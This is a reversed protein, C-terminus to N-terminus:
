RTGTAGTSSRNSNSSGLSSTSGSQVKRMLNNQMEVAEDGWRGLAPSAAVVVIERANAVGLRRLQTIVEHRRAANLEPRSEVQEIIVPGPLEELWKAIKAIRRLGAPSLQAGPQDEEMLFDYQYLM